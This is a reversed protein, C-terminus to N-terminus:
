ISAPDLRVQDFLATTLPELPADFESRLLQECLRYQRLAQTRQGTRVYCRMVVRHADERCPDNSLLRLSHELCAAYDGEKYHYDALRALLTLYRARLSEREVVANLDLSSRLDGRYLRVAQAFFGAADAVNGRRTERDGADALANFIATDVGVGAEVNLRYYGDAHLVPAGGLEVELLKHLSYMLSNLSQSALDPESEPWLAELLAGRPIVHGEPLALRCLLEEVKGGSRVTVPRGRKLLRFGGLLCILVPWDPEDAHALQTSPQYREL